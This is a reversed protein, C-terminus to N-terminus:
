QHGSSGRLSSSPSSGAVQGAIGRLEGAQYRHRPAQRRRRYASRAPTEYPYPQPMDPGTVRNPHRVRM